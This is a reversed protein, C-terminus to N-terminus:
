SAGGVSQVVKGVPTACHHRFFGVCDLDALTQNLIPTLFLILKILDQRVSHCFHM